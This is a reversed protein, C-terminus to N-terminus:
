PRKREVTRYEDHRGVLFIESYTGEGDRKQVYFARLETAVRFARIGKLGAKKEPRLLRLASFRLANRRDGLDPM